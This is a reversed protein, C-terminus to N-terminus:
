PKEGVIVTFPSPSPLPVQKIKRFGIEKMWDALEKESYAAGGPTHILQNVGILASLMPGTKERNLMQDQILIMGKPDLAEYAKRFIEKIVQPSEQNFMSSLLLSDYGKGFSDELYNGPKLTIRNHMGFSGVIERTIELTQPLDFVTASLEPNRECFKILFTGPGGAIDILNRRGSFDIKRALLEGQAIARYHMGYIYSRVAEPGQDHPKDVVPKGTLVARDLDGWAGYWSDFMSVIGGQYRPSGNVLFTKSFPTNRYKEKKRDLLGMSTAAILLIDLGRPDAGTEAALEEVTATRDKLRTFINLRQATHLIKSQWYASSISMVKMPDFTEKENNSKKRRSTATKNKQTKPPTTKRKVPRRM